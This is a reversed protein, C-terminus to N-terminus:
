AAQCNKTRNRYTGSNCPSLFLEVRFRTVLFVFSLYSYDLPSSNRGM